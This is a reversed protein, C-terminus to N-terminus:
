LPSTIGHDCRVVRRKRRVHIRLSVIGDSQRRHGSVIRFSGRYNRYVARGGAVPEDPSVHGMPVFLNLLLHTIGWAKCLNIHLKFRKLYSSETCDLLVHSNRVSGSPM